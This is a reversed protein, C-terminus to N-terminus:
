TRLAKYREIKALGERRLHCDHAPITKEFAVPDFGAFEDVVPKKFEPVRSTERHRLSGPNVEKVSKAPEGTLYEVRREIDNLTWAVGLVATGGVTAEFVKATPYDVRMAALLERVSTRSLRAEQQSARQSPLARRLLECDMITLGATAFQLRALELYDKKM